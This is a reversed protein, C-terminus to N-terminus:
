LRPLCPESLGDFEYLRYEICIIAVSIPSEMEWVGQISSCHFIYVDGGDEGAETMMMMTICRSM